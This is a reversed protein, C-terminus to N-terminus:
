FMSIETKDDRIISKWTPFRLGFGGGQNSSIEFYGITCIKGLILDPNRWYNIREDDSFGSGCNCEWEKDEHIFKVTVAGLKGINKGTGEIVSTVLLDAVHFKKIKLIKDSRKCEYPARAINLMIGEKDNAIEQDLIKLIVDKDDGIYLAPVEKLWTFNNESLLIFLNMKREYCPINSIGKKFDEVPITDFLLYEVNKKIGDKRVVKVTARYLDASNLNDDNRLLLEGDYVGDPLLKIEEIVDVLGEIKKGQKSLISIEGSDKIAVCRVGDLKTTLIFEGTVKDKHDFYKKALMIDFTPIFDDGYVENITSDIGLKLDKTAIEIIYQQQEIPQQSIFSQINAIDQDKGSNNSILYEMMNRVNLIFVSTEASIKKAIKKKSLGTVIYPNFVFYLIEKFLINDANDELIRIKDNKSSVSKLQDFIQIVNKM